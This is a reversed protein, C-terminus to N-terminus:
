NNVITFRKQIETRPYRKKGGIYLPNLYGRKEWRWLTSNDISLFDCVEQSTMYVESNQQRIEDEMEMKVVKVMQYILEELEKPSLTVQVNVGNELLEEVSM